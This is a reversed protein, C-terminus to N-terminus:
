NLGSMAQLVEDLELRRKINDGTPILNLTPLMLASDGSMATMSAVYSRIYPFILSPANYSLLNVVIDRKRANEPLQDLSLSFRSKTKVVLCEEEEIIGAFQLELVYSYHSLDEDKQSLSFAAGLKMKLSLGENNSSEPIKILSEVIRVQELQLPSAAPIIQEQEM